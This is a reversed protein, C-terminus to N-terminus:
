TIKARIRLRPQIKREKSRVWEHMAYMRVSELNKLNATSMDNTNNDGLGPQQNYLEQIGFNQANSSEEAEAFVTYVKCGYNEAQRFHELQVHRYWPDRSTQRFATELTEGIDTTYNASGTSTKGDVKSGTFFNSPAAGEYCIFEVNASNTTNFTNIDDQARAMDVNQAYDMELISLVSMNQVNLIKPDDASWMYFDRADEGDDTVDDLSYVLFQTLYPATALCDPYKIGYGNTTAFSYYSNLLTASRSTHHSQSALVCKLDTIRGAANFKDRALKHIEASRQAHWNSYLATRNWYTYEQAVIYAANWIENSLEIYIKRGAQMDNILM